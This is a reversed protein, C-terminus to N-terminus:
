NLIIGNSINYMYFSADLLLHVWISLKATVVRGVTSRMALHRSKGDSQGIQVAELVRVSVDLQAHLALCCGQKIM